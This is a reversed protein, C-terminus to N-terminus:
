DMSRYLGKEVIYRHVPLPVDAVTDGGVAERVSSSSVHSLDDHIDLPVVQRAHSSVDQHTALYQEIADLDFTGRTAAILRHHAFYGALTEEMDGDYYRRDFLRILTDYGVVFDFSDAPYTARLAAAQDAIRAANSVLIGTKPLGLSLLMGVRDAYSAGSPGKDVNRTTLLAASSAVGSVDRARALLEVHAITPPNFSAPLVAIRSELPPGGDVREVNHSDTAALLGLTRAINGDPMDGM